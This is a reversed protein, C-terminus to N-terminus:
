PLEIEILRNIGATGTLARLRRAQVCAAVAIMLTRRGAAAWAYLLMWLRWRRWPWSCCTAGCIAPRCTACGPASRTRCTPSCTSWATSSAAISAAAGARCCDANVRPWSTPRLRRDRDTDFNRCWHAISWAPGSSCASYLEDFYWKHTLFRHVGPFQEKADAPDLVGYVTCRGARLGLGIGVMASARPPWIKGASDVDRKAAIPMRTGLTM